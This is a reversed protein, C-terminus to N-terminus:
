FRFILGGSFDGQVALVGTSISVGGSPGGSGIGLFLGGGSFYMPLLLRGQMRIGIRDSFFFKLGGGLAASFSVHDSEDKMNFWTAGLSVMGFPVVPGKKLEKVGGLQFYDISMDYYNSEGAVFDEFRATTNSRTYSFEGLVGPMVEVSLIGGYHEANEMKFNARYLNVSGNLSYGYVPTLEIRRGVPTTKKKTQEDLKYTQQVTGTSSTPNQASLMVPLVMVFAMVSVKLNSLKM